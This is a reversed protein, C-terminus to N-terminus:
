KHFLLVQTIDNLIEVWNLCLPVNNHKFNEYGFSSKELNEILHWVQVM